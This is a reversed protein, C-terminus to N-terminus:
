TSQKGKLNEVGHPHLEELHSHVRNPRAPKAQSDVTAELSIVEARNPVERVRRLACRGFYDKSCDDPRNGTAHSDREAPAGVAKM